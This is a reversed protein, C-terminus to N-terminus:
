CVHLKTEEKMCIFCGTPHPLLRRPPPPSVGPVGGLLCGGQLLCGGPASGGGGPGPGGGGPLLGGGLGPAGGPLLVGRGSWASGLGPM